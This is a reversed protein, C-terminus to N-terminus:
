VLAPPHVLKGETTYPPEYKELFDRFMDGYADDRYFIYNFGDKGIERLERVREWQDRASAFEGLSLYTNALTERM